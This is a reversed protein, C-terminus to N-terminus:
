MGLGGGIYESSKELHGALLSELRYGIHQLFATSDM